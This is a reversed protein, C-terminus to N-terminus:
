ESDSDTTRQRAEAAGVLTNSRYTDLREDTFNIEVLQNLRKMTIRVMDHLDHNTIYRYGAAEIVALQLVLLMNTAAKENRDDMAM